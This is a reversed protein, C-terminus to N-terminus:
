VIVNNAEDPAGLAYQELVGEDGRGRRRTSM